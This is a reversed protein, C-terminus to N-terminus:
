RGLVKHENNNEVIICTFGHPEPNSYTRLMGKCATLPSQIPRDKTHSWFLGLGLTVAPTASYLSIERSLPGSRRAKRDKVLFLRSKM